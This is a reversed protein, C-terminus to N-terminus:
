QPTLWSKSGDAVRDKAQKFWQQTQLALGNLERAVTCVNIGTLLAAGKRRPHCKQLPWVRLTVVRSLKSGIAIRRFEGGPVAAYSYGVDSRTQEVLAV